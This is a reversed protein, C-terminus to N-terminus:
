QALFKEIVKNANEGGIGGFKKAGEGNAKAYNPIEVAIKDVYNKLEPYDKELNVVGTACISSLTAVICLDAITCKESCAVYGTEKIFGKTWGLTEQLKEYKEKEIKDSGAFAIPYFIEGFSKYLQGMDFYMMQDVRARAKPDKPYLSEDKGYANALYGIIARSENLMFDGDVISPINHQPNIKLYEPKLHEGAMLDVSILEYELGLAECALMVIRVPASIDMGYIKIAM